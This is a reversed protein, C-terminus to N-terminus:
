QEASLLNICKNIDKILQALKAKAKDIDGYSIEAIRAMKLHEYDAKLQAIQQKLVTTEDDKAKLAAHLKANEEKVEQQLLILQRVRTTLKNLIDNGQLM